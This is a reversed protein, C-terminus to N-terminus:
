RQPGQARAMALHGFLLSGVGAVVTVVLWVASVFLMLDDEVAVAIWGALLGAPLLFPMALVSRTLAWPEAAELGKLLFYQMLAIPGAFLALSALLFRDVTSTAQSLSAGSALFGVAAVILLCVHLAHFLGLTRPVHSANLVRLRHLRVASIVAHTLATVYVLAWCAISLVQGVMTVSTSLLFQVAPTAFIVFGAVCSLAARWSSSFGHLIVGGHSRVFSLGFIAVSLGIPLLLLWGGQMVLEVGTYAEVRHGPGTLVREFPLWFSFVSVLYVGRWLSVGAQPWRRALRAAMPRM